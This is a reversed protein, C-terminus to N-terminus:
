CHPQGVAPAIEIAPPINAINKMSLDLVEWEEEAARDILESLAKLGMM